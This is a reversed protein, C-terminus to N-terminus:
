SFPCVLSAAVRVIYTTMLRAELEQIQVELQNNSLSTVSLYCLYATVVSLLLLWVLCTM